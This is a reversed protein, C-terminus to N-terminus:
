FTSYNEEIEQCFICIFVDGIYNVMSVLKWGKKGKDQLTEQLTNASPYEVLYNYRKM